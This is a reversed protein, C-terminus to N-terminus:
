RGSWAVASRRARGKVTWDAYPPNAEDDQEQPGGSDSLLVLLVMTVAALEEADPQGRVVTFATQNAM